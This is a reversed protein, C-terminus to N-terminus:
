NIREYDKKARKLTPYFELFFRINLYFGFITAFMKKIYLHKKIFQKTKQVFGEKNEHITQTEKISEHWAIEKDLIDIINSSFDTESGDHSAANQVIQKFDLVSNANEKLYKKEFKNIEESQKKRKQILLEQKIWNILNLSHRICSKFAFNRVIDKEGISFNNRGVIEIIKKFFLMQHNAYFLWVGLPRELPPMNPAFKSPNLTRSKRRYFFLLKDSHDARYGLAFFNLVFVNDVNSKLTDFDEYPLTKRFAETKFLGFGLPLVNRLNIYRIIRDLKTMEKGYTEEKKAFYKGVLINKPNMFLCQGYVMDAETHTDLYEVANKIYNEDWM